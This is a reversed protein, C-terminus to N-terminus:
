VSIKVDRNIIENIRNQPIGLAKAHVNQSINLPKLFEFDLVEGITLSNGINTM